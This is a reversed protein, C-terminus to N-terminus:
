GANEAVRVPLGVRAFLAQAKDGFGKAVLEAYVQARQEPTLMPLVRLVDDEWTEHRVTERFKEPRTAKLLFILLTDSYKRVRGVQKGQYFVPEPWGEKARRRAELELADAAVERASDWAAAFEQAELLAAGEKGDTNRADYATMRGIGAKQAAASVNGTTAFEM